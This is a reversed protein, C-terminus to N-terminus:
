LKPTKWQAYIAGSKEHEPRDDTYYYMAFSLRDYDANWESLHGHYADDTTRFIVARNFIPAIKKECKTMENNWLELHGNYEDKYNSNMYLLLNVRRYKKTNRHINFDAHIDLHGGKKTKHIGGGMNFNDAQLGKIQTLSELYEVMKSSNLYNVIKKVSESCKDMDMLYSKNVSVNPLGGIDASKFISDDMNRIDKEVQLLIEKDDIFNDIVLYNFPENSLFENTQIEIDNNETKNLLSLYHSFDKNYDYMEIEDMKEPSINIIKNFSFKGVGRYNHHTFLEFDIDNKHSKLLYYIIKWVDGTWPERYKLIGKEYVHKIPIKYQERETLPYIDDIFIIGNENLCELANNLDRRVYDSQHMGDIFIRDYKKTNTAFFEDSTVHLVRTDKTIPDPDVGTKDKSSVRSFTYGSEVGIELYSHEYKTFKNIVSSRSSYVISQLEPKIIEYNDTYKCILHFYKELQKETADLCYCKMRSFGLEDIRKTLTDKSISNDCLVMFDNRINRYLEKIKKNYLTNIGILCYQKDFDPNVVINCINHKWTNDDREWIKKHDKSLYNEDEYAGKKKMLEHVNYQNYFQPQIHYPGLRNIESNRILSFNNNGDNMFQIYGLKHLKAVKTNCMTRLLIEFDDCIPLFESYNELEFMTKRRWMRPHNPLCVLHSTTINNIGACVCVNVWKDNLKQMYYCNYGKGIHDGYWFNSGDEYLNTFDSYVFGIEPDSEFVKYADDLITPLIIDDHDLELLYKGRCLGIAENKVNGINGSNCDRKYLRIRKDIKCFDRLFVFHEDEPSDDLIVWEWDRLTQSVLGKYARKIKEYSKYCTTFISFKPRTLERKMIINHVYCYNVNNNFEDIDLQRKHLWRNRMRDVIHNMVLTTYESGDDPSYTVLLHYNPDFMNNLKAIENTSIIEVTCNLKDKNTEFFNDIENYKDDRLLYVFPYKSM